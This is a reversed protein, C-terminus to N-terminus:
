VSIIFRQVSVGLEVEHHVDGIGPPLLVSGGNTVYSSMNIMWVNTLVHLQATPVTCYITYRTTPKLFIVPDKPASAAGMERAHAEYNKGIAVIKKSCLSHVVRRYLYLSAGSM